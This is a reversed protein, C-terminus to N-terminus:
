VEVNMLGAQAGPLLQVQVAYVLDAQSPDAKALLADARAMFGTALTSLDPFDADATPGTVVFFRRDEPPGRVAQLAACIAEDHLRYMSPHDMSSPAALAPKVPRVRGDEGAVLLGAAKLAALSEEAEEPLIKLMRAIWHPDDQFYHSFAAEYIAMHRLDLWVVLALGVPITAGRMLLRGVMQRLLSAKEFPDMAHAYRVQTCFFEGESRPLKLVRIFGDVYPSSLPREGKLVNRVHGPSCGVGRAFRGVTYGPTAIKKAEFWANLYERYDTFDFAVPLPPRADAM